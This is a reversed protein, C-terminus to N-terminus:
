VTLTTTTKLDFANIKDILVRMSFPKAIHDDAGCTGAITMLDKSASMLIIPLNQTAAESKLRKCIEGGDHGSMWIDLLLVDPMSDAVKSLSNADMTTVVDYGEMELGFQLSECIAADDDAILIKRLQM